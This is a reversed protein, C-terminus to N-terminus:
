KFQAFINGFAPDLTGDGGSGALCLFIDAKSGAVLNIWATALVNNTTNVAISVESAGIDLYDAVTISFATRYRLILKSAAAGATAQKNVILRAQTYGSLDARTIHRHSGLFFALAIPMNTWTALASDSHIPIVLQGTGSGGPHSHLSNESGDVLNPHAVVEGQIM